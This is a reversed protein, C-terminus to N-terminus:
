PTKDLTSIEIKIIKLFGILTLIGICGLIISNMVNGEPNLDLHGYYGLVSLVIVGIICLAFIKSKSTKRYTM